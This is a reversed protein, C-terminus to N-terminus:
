KSTMVFVGDWDKPPPVNMFQECRKFYVAAPKDEPILTAVRLFESMAEKFRRERYLRLADAFALFGQRKEPSLVNKRGALEYVGIPQSKGEVRIFDLERAEIESQASQYTTESILIRTGFMKNVGELRSAVNVTDGMVTYNSRTYSGLDGYLVMGTHIGIRFDIPPWKHEAFKKHLAPLAAAQELAARCAQVAHGPQDFPANGYAMICDGIYKDFTLDYKFLIDTMVSFYVNLLEVLEQPPYKESLSTFKVLDSFFVTVERNKAALVAQDQMLLDVLKPSM